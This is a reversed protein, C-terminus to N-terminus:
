RFVGQRGGAARAMLDRVAHRNGRDLWKELVIHLGGLIGYSVSVAVMKLGTLFVFGGMGDVAAWLGAGLLVALASISLLAIGITFYVYYMLALTPRLKYSGEVTMGDDADPSIRGSFYYTGPSVLWIAPHTRRKLSVEGTTIRGVFLRNVPLRPLSFLFPRGHDAMRRLKGAFAAATAPGSLSWREERFLARRIWRNLRLVPRWRWPKM